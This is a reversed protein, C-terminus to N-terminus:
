LIHKLLSHPYVKDEENNEPLPPQEETKTESESITVEPESVSEPSDEIKDQPSCTECSCNACREDAEAKAVKEELEEDKSMFEDFNRLAVETAEYAPMSVISVEFLKGVKEITRVAKGDKKSWRDRDVTFGFSTGKLDGRNVLEFIDRGLTTNPLDITFKVGREDKELKLTESSRRGLVQAYDHNYLALVEETEKLADNLANPAVFETFGGLDRSESNFVIAYGGIRMVDSDPSVVARLESAPIFQRNDM